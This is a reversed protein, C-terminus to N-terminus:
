TDYKDVAATGGFKEEASLISIVTKLNAFRM